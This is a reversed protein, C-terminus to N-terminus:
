EIDISIDDVSMSDCAICFQQKNNESALPLASIVRM